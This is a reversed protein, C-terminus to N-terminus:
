SRVHHYNRCKNGNGSADFCTAGSGEDFHYEAIIVGDREYEFDLVRMNAFLAAGAVGRLAGLYFSNASVGNSVGSKDDVLVNDVYLYGGKRIEFDHIETDAAATSKWSDAGWGLRWQGMNIGFYYRNVSDNAGHSPNDAISLFNGRM